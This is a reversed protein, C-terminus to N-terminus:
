SLNFGANLYFLHKSISLNYNATLDMRLATSEGDKKTYSGRKFFQKETFNIFKTHSAPYFEEHNTDTKNLGLRAVLKLNEQAQWEM